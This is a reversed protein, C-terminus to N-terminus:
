KNSKRTMSVLDIMVGSSDWEFSDDETSEAVTGVYSRFCIAMVKGTYPSDSPISCEMTYPVFDTM